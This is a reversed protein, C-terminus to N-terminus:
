AAVASEQKVAFQLSARLGCRRVDAGCANLTDPCSGAVNIAANHDAANEVEGHSKAATTTATDQLICRADVPTLGASEYYTLVGEKRATRYHVGQEAAWTSLKKRSM